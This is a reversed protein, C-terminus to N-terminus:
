EAEVIVMEHGIMKISKESGMRIKLCIGFVTENCWYFTDYICEYSFPLSMLSNGHIFM